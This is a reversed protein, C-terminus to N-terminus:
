EALNKVPIGKKEAMHVTQGTGSRKKNTLYYCVCCDSLEVLRANRQKMCSYMRCESVIEASDAHRLISMYRAIDQEEWGATQEEPPCPLVLHLRIHTHKRRLSLVTEACLTDWGLAGGAYFDTCGDAILANLKETLRRLLAPTESVNRHGTFCLTKM